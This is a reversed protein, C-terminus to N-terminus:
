FGLLYPYQTFYKLFREILFVKDFESSTCETRNKERLNGKPTYICVVQFTNEYIFM